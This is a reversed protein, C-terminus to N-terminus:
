ASKDTAQRVAELVSVRVLLVMSSSPVPLLMVRTASISMSPAAQTDPVAARLQSVGAPLPSVAGVAAQLSVPAMWRGEASKEPLARLEISRVMRRGSPQVPSTSTVMSYTVTAAEGVPFTSHSIEVTQRATPSDHSAAKLAAWVM